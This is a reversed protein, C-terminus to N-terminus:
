ESEHRVQAAKLTIGAAALADTLVPLEDRLDAATAGVPTTLNLQLSNGVIRLKAEVSGLRPTSLKLTTLWPQAEEVDRAAQQKEEEIEWEMPQGPWAEGHWLLRQNAAAELQQHVL